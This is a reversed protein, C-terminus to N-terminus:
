TVIDRQVLFHVILDALEDAGYQGADLHFDPATPREYASDIGTFNRIEGRRAKAYLGKPDRQECIDLPADVFIEFFPVGALRERVMARDAAFPSIFSCIVILGADVML